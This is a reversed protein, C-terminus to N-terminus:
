RLDVAQLDGFSYCPEDALAKRVSDAMRREGSKWTQELEAVASLPSLDCTLVNLSMRGTKGILATLQTIHERYHQPSSAGFILYVLATNPQGLLCASAGRHILQYPLDLIANRELPKNAYANLLGLWGALVHERNSGTTAGLWDRVSQYEPETYKAEVAIASDPGIIMVDTFSSKGRGKQVPVPFEFALETTSILNVGLRRGVESLREQPKRWFDLLPVVSRWPSDLASDPPLALLANFSAAQELNWSLRLVFSV